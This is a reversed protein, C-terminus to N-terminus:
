RTCRCTWCVFSVLTCFERGERKKKIYAARRGERAEKAKTEEFINSQQKVFTRVREAAGSAEAVRKVKASDRFLAERSGSYPLAKAEDGGGETDNNSSKRRKRPKLHDLKKQNDEHNIIEGEVNDGM